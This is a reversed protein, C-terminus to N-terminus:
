FYEELIPIVELDIGLPHTYFVALNDLPFSAIFLSNEVTELSLKQRLRCCSNNIFVSFSPKSKFRFRILNVDM